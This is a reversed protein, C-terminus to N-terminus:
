AIPRTLTGALAPGQSAKGTQVKEWWLFATM